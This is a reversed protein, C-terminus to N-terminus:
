KEEQLVLIGGAKQIAYMIDLNRQFTLDDSGLMVVARDQDNTKGALMTTLQNALDKMDVPKANLMLTAESAQVTITNEQTQAQAQNKTSSPLDVNLSDNHAFTSGILFFIIIQWAIDALSIFPIHPEPRNRKGKIKM